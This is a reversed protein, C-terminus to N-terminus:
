DQLKLNKELEKTNTRINFEMVYDRPPLPDKSQKLSIGYDRFVWETGDNLNESLEMEKYTSPLPPRYVKKWTRIFKNETHTKAHRRRQRM